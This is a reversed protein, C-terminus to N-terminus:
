NGNSHKSLNKKNHATALELGKAYYRTASAQDHQASHLEALALYTEPKPDLQISAEFYHQAKNLLNARTCLRGLTLLLSSDNQHDALWKEANKLQQISDDTMALGYQYVLLEDWYKKLCDYLLDAATNGQDLEILASTYVLILEPRKQLNSPITLWMASLANSDESALVQRLKAAYAKAQLVECEQQQIIKRKRLTHTIKLLKDWAGLKQYLNQALILARNQHPDENLLLEVESCAQTLQQASILWEIKLLQTAIEAEPMINKAQLFYHDRLAEKGQANACYAAILYDILPIEAHPVAKLINKEASDFYGEICELLSRVTLNNSRTLKRKTRWAHWCAAISGIKRWINSFVIILGSFIFWLIIGFWLPTELTWHRYALLM